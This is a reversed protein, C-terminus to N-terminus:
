HNVIGVLEIKFILDKGALPHNADLYVKDQTLKVVKVVTSSGDDQTIQLQTGEDPEIHQPIQSRDVELILEDMYPGYAEEAAIHLEKSEGPNMGVVSQEFAPILMGEGIVFQLPDSGESTDFRTGDDLTGTYHVKVADGQKAQEM